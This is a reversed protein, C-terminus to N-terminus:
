ADGTALQWTSIHRSVHRVFACSFGRKKCHNDPVVEVLVHFLPLEGLEVEECHHTFGPGVPPQPARRAAASRAAAAAQGASHQTARGRSLRRRRRPHLLTSHSEAVRARGPSGDAPINLVRM